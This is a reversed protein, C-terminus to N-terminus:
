LCPERIQHQQPQPIPRLGAAIAGILGRAQSGRYAAPTARFLCFSLSFFITGKIRLTKSAESARACPESKQVVEM